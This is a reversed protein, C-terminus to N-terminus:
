ACHLTALMIRKDTWEDMEQHITAVHTPKGPFFNFSYSFYSLIKV